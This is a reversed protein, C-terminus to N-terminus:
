RSVGESPKCVRCPKRGAETALLFHDYYELDVREIDVVPCGVVHYCRGKPLGVLRYLERQLFDFTLIAKLSNEATGYTTDYGHLIAHRSLSSSTPGGYIFKALLVETYFSRMWGDLFTPRQTALLKELHEKLHTSRCKSGKKHGYREPIIGEIQPLLAPVSVWYQGAMHAEVAQKLIPIRRSLLRQNEWSLLLRRLQGNGYLRLLTIGVDERIAEAGEVDYRRVIRIASPMDLEMIPPWGLEVMIAPLRDLALGAQRMPEQLRRMSDQLDALFPELRSKVQAMSEALKRSLEALPAVMPRLDVNFALRGSDAPRAVLSHFESDANDPM